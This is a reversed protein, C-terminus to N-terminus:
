LTSRIKVTFKSGEDPKSDVVIVGDLLELIRRVLSLGLGNGETSRSKDGQYFKDFMHEQVEPPIGGGTDAVTVIAKSEKEYLQISISGGTNTFKVANNLLNLWVHHLLEENSKIQVPNLNINLELQKQRCQPELLLIARRIQEDLSFAKVTGVGEQSDLRSLLLVNSSLRSLRESEFIIIDLYEKRQELPLNEKELLKAFGKISVIPTKFEHSINSVFDNRLTEISGLEKAMHNFSETLVRFERQGKVPLRVDFNGAAIEQTAEVIQHFNRLFRKGVAATLITGIVISPVLLVFIGLLPRSNPLHILFGQQNLLHVILGALIAAVLLINFVFLVLSSFLTLSSKKRWDFKM